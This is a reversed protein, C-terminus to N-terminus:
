MKFSGCQRFIGCFPCFRLLFLTIILTRALYKYCLGNWTFITKSTWKTRQQQAATIMQTTTTAVISVACSGGSCVFSLICVSPVSMQKSNCLINIDLWLEWIKHTHANKNDCMRMLYSSQWKILNYQLSVSTHLLVDFACMVCCMFMCLSLLHPLPHALSTRDSCHKMNKPSTWRNLKLRMNININQLVM